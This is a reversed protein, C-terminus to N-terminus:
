SSALRLRITNESSPPMPVCNPGTIPAKASTNMVWTMRLRSSSKWRNAVPRSSTRSTSAAGPPTIPRARLKENLRRDASTLLVHADEGDLPQRLVEAAQRRDGVHRKGDLCARDGA